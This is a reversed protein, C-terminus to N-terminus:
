ITQLTANLRRDWKYRSKWGRATGDSIGSQEAIEKLSMGGTVPPM